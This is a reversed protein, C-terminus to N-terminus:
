VCESEAADHVNKYWTCMQLWCLLTQTNGTMNHAKFHQIGLKITSQLRYFM